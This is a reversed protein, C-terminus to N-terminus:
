TLGVQLASRECTVEPNARAPGCRVSIRLWGESARRRHAACLPVLYEGAWSTTHRSTEQMVAVRTPRVDSGTGECPCGAAACRAEHGQGWRIFHATPSGCACRRRDPPAALRLVWLRM